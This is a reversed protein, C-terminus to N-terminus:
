EPLDEKQVEKPPEYNEAAHVLSDAQETPKLGFIMVDDGSYYKGSANAGLRSFIERKSPMRVDVFKNIDM